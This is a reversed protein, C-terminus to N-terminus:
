TTGARVVGSLVLMTAGTLASISAGVVGGFGLRILGGLSPLRADFRGTQFLLTAQSEPALHTQVLWSTVAYLLAV